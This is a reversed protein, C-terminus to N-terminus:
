EEQARTKRWARWKGVGQRGCVAAAWAPLAAVGAVAEATLMAMLVGHRGVRWPFRQSLRETATVVSVVPRVVWERVATRLAADGAVKGALWPSFSEYIRNVTSIFRRGLASGTRLEERLTQLYVVSPHDPSGLAATAIFCSTGGGPQGVTPLLQIFEAIQCPRGEDDVIWLMYYGPPALRADNVATVTLEGGGKTFDLRVYRQESDTHHTCAGPRMFSVKNISAAQATRVIFTQGYEIRRTPAGNRLVDTITPRPGKHMYPPEYFEFNKANLPMGAGYTRGVWPGPTALAYNLTPENNNPDAGGATFVRGDPLLLAVSHYMRPAHMAREPLGREAVPVTRFGGGPTYIEAFRSPTTGSTAAPISTGATNQWKYNDHGGCILVTTDPLIVCHGNTRGFNMPGVSSWTPPDVTTDLLNAALPDAANEIHHFASPGGGGPEVLGNGTSDVARGGGIVLIKGDQAPPLLVSMGEERRPNPPRLGAYSAWSASTAGNAILLSATEPNAMEQGWNTHTFYIRGNPALHLGPYIPLDKTAGTLETSNWDPAALIEVMSAISPNPVGSGDERRGSFVAVRGDPLTVLTPYWRGQQLSNTVGGTKSVTWAPPTTAPDFLAITKSGTSGHAGFGGGTLGHLESGGVALIRGDPAQVYHCCFLDAGPPFALPALMAGPNAPDFLYCLPAYMSLEVHGCFCLVKGTHLLIAHLVFLGRPDVLTNGAGDIITPNPVSFNTAGTWQGDTDLPM